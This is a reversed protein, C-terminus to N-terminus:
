RRDSAPVEIDFGNLVMSVMSYIGVLFILEATGDQGFTEKALKYPLEAVPGGRVLAAALDYAIAQERPLTAPRQGSVIASIVEKDLKAADQAVAIHAYIEYVARFHAGTVLIAIQRCAAPVVTGKSLEKSLDWTPKGFRAWHLWPNWPGVLSGDDLTAVFGQYDSDIGKKFDLYLSHQEPSLDNPALPPLRM